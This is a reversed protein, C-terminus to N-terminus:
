CFNRVQIDHMLRYININFMITGYDLRAKLEERKSNRPRENKFMPLANPTIIIKGSMDEVVDKTREKKPKKGHALLAGKTSRKLDYLITFRGSAFTAFVQNLRHHWASRIIVENPFSVERDLTFNKM